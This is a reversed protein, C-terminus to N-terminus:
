EFHKKKSIVATIVAAATACIVGTIVSATITIAVSSNSSKTNPDSDTTTSQEETIIDSTIDTTNKTTDDTDTASEDGRLLQELEAGPLSRIAKIQYERVSEDEATVKIVATASQGPDPFEFEDITVTAKNSTANAKISLSDAEYTLLVYYQLIEPDFAPSITYGDVSLSLLTTDSDKIYSPDQERYISVTYTKTEGNEASVTITVDTNSAVALTPSKVSVIAERHKAKATVNVSSISYDVTASYETVSASFEPTITVGEIALDTLDCNESIPQSIIATYTIDDKKIDNKSDSLYLNTATVSIRAGVNLSSKVRFTASFIAEADTISSSMDKKYFIFSNSRFEVNCCGDQIPTYEVLTLQSSNYTIRGSGGYIGGGAYFTITVTESARVRAPGTWHSTPAASVPITLLVLLFLAALSCFAKKM